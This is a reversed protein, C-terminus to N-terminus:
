PQVLTTTVAGARAKLMTPKLTTGMKTASVTVDGTVNFMYAIGDTDTATASPSPLSGGDYCYLSAAPDSSVTAGQIPTKSADAVELAIMGMATDQNARCLTNALLDLTAPALMNLAADAYDATIAGPPYLYTDVLDTMTAKIYGELAVGHTDITLTYNGSADTTTTAVPTSDDANSYAGVTAGEVPVSGTPSRQSATGTITITQAAPPADPMETAGDDGCASALVLLLYLPYKM